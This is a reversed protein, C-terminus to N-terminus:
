VSFVAILADIVDRPNSGVASYHIGPTSPRKKFGFFSFVGMLKAPLDADDQPVVRIRTVLGPRLSTSYDEELHRFGIMFQSNEFVVHYYHGPETGKIVKVINASTVPAMTNLDFDLKSAKPNQM